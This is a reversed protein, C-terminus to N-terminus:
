GGPNQPFKFYPISVGDFKFNDIRNGITPELDFGIAAAGEALRIGFDTVFDDQDVGDGSVGLGGILIGDRYIPASGPFFIIGSQTDPVVPPPAFGMTNFGLGLRNQDRLPVLPGPDSGDITPPFFEAALFGLSRATVAIGRGPDTMVTLVDPQDFFVPMLPHNGANPGSADVSLPNSYYYANRAKSLSIELSFLTADAMRYAALIVGDADTITIIMQCPVDAPLRIAAHTQLAATETADVIASVEASTFPSTSLSAVPGILYGEPDPSGSIMPDFVTLAPNYAPGVTSGDPLTTQDIYPLLVGVLFVAGEPPIPPFGYNGIPDSVQNALTGSFAAYEASVPNATSTVPGGAADSVYIGIAGVLRRQVQVDANAPDVGGSLAGTAVKYLPMGGPLGTLGPSPSTGDPNLFLPIDKGVNYFTGAMASELLAGRNSFAIEYLPALPTDQVGTTPRVPSPQVPYSVDLTQELPGAAVTSPFHFTNLFEGTRSTLPAQSHSLYAATRALSTALANDRDALLSGANSNWIRLINGLRDVVAIAMFPEDISEAAATVIADVDGMSLTDAPLVQAFSATSVVPELGDDASGSCGWISALLALTGCGKSILRERM